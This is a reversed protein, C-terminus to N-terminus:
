MKKRSSCLFYQYYLTYLIFSNALTALGENHGLQSVRRTVLTNKEANNRTGTGTCELMSREVLFMPRRVPKRQAIKYVLTDYM